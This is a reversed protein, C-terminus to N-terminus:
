EVIAIARCPSGERGELLLPLACMKFMFNSGLRTLNALNEVIPIGAGLIKKHRPSPKDEVYDISTADTMYARIRKKILLDILEFSPVPFLRNYLDSEAHVDIGTHLVFITEEPIDDPDVCIDRIFVEQGAPDAKVHFLVAEGYFHSLPMSDITVGDAVYHLPSDVHTGTHVLMTSRTLNYGESNARGIWSFTPRETQPYVLMSDKVPYTLDIIESM